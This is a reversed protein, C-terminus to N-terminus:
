SSFKMALQGDYFNNQQTTFIPIEIDSKNTELYYEFQVPNM